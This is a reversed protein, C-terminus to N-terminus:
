GLISQKPILQKTNTVATDRVMNLGQRFWSTPYFPLNEIYDIESAIWVANYPVGMQLGNATAGIDVNGTAGSFTILGPNADDGALTIDGGVLVSIGSPSDVVLGTTSLISGDWKLWSSADGIHFKGLGTDMGLWWGAGTSAFTAKQQYTYGGTIFQIVHALTDGVIGTLGQVGTVGALGTSGQSGTQGKIGTIGQIGQIGQVGTIGQIGQAGTIGQVGQTGQIGTNGQTGQAGTIGTIGQIGQAGTIGQDNQQENNGGTNDTQIIGTFAM